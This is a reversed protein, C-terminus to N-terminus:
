EGQYECYTGVIATATMGNDWQADCTALPISTTPPNTERPNVCRQGQKAEGPLCRPVATAIHPVTPSEWTDPTLVVYQGRLDPTPTRTPTTQYVVAFPSVSSSVPYTVPQRTEHIWALGGVIVLAVFAFWQWPSQNM